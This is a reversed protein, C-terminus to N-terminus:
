NSSYSWCLMINSNNSYGGEWKEGFIGLIIFNANISILCMMPLVIISTLKIVLMLGKNIRTPDNEMKSFAPFLTTTFTYATRKVCICLIIHLHM